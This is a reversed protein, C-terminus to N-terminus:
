PSRRVATFRGKVATVAFGASLCARLGSPTCVAEAAVGPFSGLRAAVLISHLGQGRRSPVVYASCLRVLGPETAVAAAFGAVQGADTVAWWRKGDDDWLRGGLQRSVPRSALFPGILRYFGPDQNTLTILDKM